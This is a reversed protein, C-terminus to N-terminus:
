WWCSTSPFAMVDLREATLLDLVRWLGVPGAPPSLSEEAALGGAKVHGGRWEGVRFGVEAVAALKYRPRDLFKLRGLLILGTDSIYIDLLYLPRGAVDVDAPAAVM